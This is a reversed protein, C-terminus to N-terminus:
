NKLLEDILEIVEYDNYIISGEIGELEEMNNYDINFNDVPILIYYQFNSTSLDVSSQKEELIENLYKKLKSNENSNLKKEYLEKRKYIFGEFGKYYDEYKIVSMNKFNIEYYQNLCSGGDNLMTKQFMDTILLYNEQEDIVDENKNGTNFIFLIMMINALLIFYGFILIKNRYSLSM